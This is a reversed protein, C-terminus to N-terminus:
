KAAVVHLQKWVARSSTVPPSVTHILASLSDYKAVCSGDTFQGMVWIQESMQGTTLESTFQCFGFKVSVNHVLFNM